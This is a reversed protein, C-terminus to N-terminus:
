EFEIEINAIKDLEESISKKIQAIKKYRETLYKIWEKDYKEQFEEVVAGHTESLLLNNNKDFDAMIVTTYYRNAGEILVEQEKDPSMLLIKILDNIKM